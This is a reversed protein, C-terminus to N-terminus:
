ERQISDYETNQDALANDSKSLPMSIHHQRHYFASRYINYKVHRVRAAALEPDAMERTDSAYHTKPTKSESKAVPRSATLPCDGRDVHKTM